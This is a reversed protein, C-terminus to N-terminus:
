AAACCATHTLTHSIPPTPALSRCLKWPWLLTLAIQHQLSNYFYLYSICPCNALLYTPSMWPCNHMSHFSTMAFDAPTKSHGVPGTFFHDCPLLYRNKVWMAQLSTTVSSAMPYKTLRFLPSHILWASHIVYRFLKVWKLQTLKIFKCHPMHPHAQWWAHIPLQLATERFQQLSCSSSSLFGTM